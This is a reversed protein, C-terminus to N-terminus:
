LELEIGLRPVEMHWPHPGLFVFFFSFFVLIADMSLIHSGLGLSALVCAWPIFGSVQANVQQILKDLNKFWVNANEYQFDSGMTM